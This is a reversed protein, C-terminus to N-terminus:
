KWQQTHRRLWWCPADAAHPFISRVCPQDVTGTFYYQEKNGKLSATVFHDVPVTSFATQRAIRVRLVGWDGVFLVAFSVAALILARGIIRKM